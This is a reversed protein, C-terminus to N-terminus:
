QGVKMAFRIAFSGALDRVFFRESDSGDVAFLKDAELRIPVGRKIGFVELRSRGNKMVVLLCQLVRTLTSFPWDSRENWLMLRVGRTSRQFM